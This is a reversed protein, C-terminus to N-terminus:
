GFRAGDAKETATKVGGGAKGDGLLCTEGTVAQREIVALPVADLEFRSRPNGTAHLNGLVLRGLDVQADKTSRGEGIGKGDGFPAIAL